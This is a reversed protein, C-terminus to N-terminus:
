RRFKPNGLVYRMEKPHERIWRRASGAKKRRTRGGGPKKTAAQKHVKVFYRQAAQLRKTAAALESPM